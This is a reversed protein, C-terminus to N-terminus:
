AVEVARVADILPVAGAVVIATLAEDVGALNRDCAEVALAHVEDRRHRAAEVLFRRISCGNFLRARRACLLAAARRRRAAGSSHVHAIVQDFGHRGHGTIEVTNEDCVSKLFRVRTDASIRRETAERRDADANIQALATELANM